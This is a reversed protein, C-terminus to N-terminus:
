RTRTATLGAAGCPLGRGAAVTVAETRQPRGGLAAALVGADSLAALVRRGTARRPAAQTPTLAMGLGSAIDRCATTRAPARRAPDEDDRGCPGLPVAPRVAVAPGYCATAAGMVRARGMAVM